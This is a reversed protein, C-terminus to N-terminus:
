GKKGGLESRSIFLIGMEYDKRFVTSRKGKKRAPNSVSTLAKCM